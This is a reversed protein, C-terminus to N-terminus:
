RMEQHTRTEADSPRSNYVCVYMHISSTNCYWAHMNRSHVCTHVRHCCSWSQPRSIVAVKDDGRVSLESRCGCSRCQRVRLKSRDERSCEYHSCGPSTWVYGLSSATQAHTRCSARRLCKQIFVRRVFKGKVVVVVVVVLEIALFTRGSNNSYVSFSRGTSINSIANIRDKRFSYMVPLDLRMSRWAKVMSADTQECQRRVRAPQGPEGVPWHTLCWSLFSISQSYKSKM